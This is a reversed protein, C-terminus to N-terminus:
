RSHRAIQRFAEQPSNRAGVAGVRRTNTYRLMPKWGTNQECTSRREVNNARRLQAILVARAFLLIPRVGTSADGLIQYLSVLVLIM